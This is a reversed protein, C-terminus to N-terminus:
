KAGSLDLAEIDQAVDDRNVLDGRLSACLMSRTLQGQQIRFQLMKLLCMDKDPKHNAQIKDLDSLTCGIGIGIFYWKELAKNLPRFINMTHDVTLDAHRLSVLWYHMLYKVANHM